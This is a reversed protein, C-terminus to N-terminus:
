EEEKTYENITITGHGPSSCLVLVFYYDDDARDLTWYKYLNGDYINLVTSDSDDFSKNFNSLYGILKSKIQFFEGHIYSVDAGEVEEGNIKFEIMNPFPDNENIFVCRGTAAISDQERTNQGIVLGTLLLAAATLITKM